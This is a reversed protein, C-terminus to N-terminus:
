RIGTDCHVVARVSRAARVRVTVVPCRPLVGTLIRLRFTGPPLKLRFRGRADSRTSAAMRGRADRVEVTASVPRPLCPHDVREVPCTPGADVTGSVTGRAPAGSLAMVALFAALVACM